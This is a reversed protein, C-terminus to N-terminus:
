IIVVSIQKPQRIHTLHKKYSFAFSLAPLVLLFYPGMLIFIFLESFLGGKEDRKGMLRCLFADVTNGSLNGFYIIRIYILIDRAMEHGYYEYLRDRAGKLTYSGKESYHQAFALAVCLEEPFDGLEGSLLNGIEDPGVGHALAMESHLWTCYRCGLVGTVAMNLKERFAKDVRRSRLARLLAPMGFILCVLDKLFVKFDYTRKKFDDSM